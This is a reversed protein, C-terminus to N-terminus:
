SVLFHSTKRWLTHIVETRDAKSPLESLSFASVVVDFQVQSGLYSVHISRVNGRAGRGLSYCLEVRQYKKQEKKDEIM